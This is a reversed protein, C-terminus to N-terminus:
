KCLRAGVDSNASAPVSACHLYFGGRSVGSGYYGGFSVIRTADYSSHCYQIDCLGTTDSGSGSDDAEDTIFGTINSKIKKVYGHGKTSVSTGGYTSDRFDLQDKSFTFKLDVRIIGDLFKYRNGYFNEIGRYTNYAGAKSASNGQPSTKTTNVANTKNGGLLSFGTGDSGGDNGGNSMNGFGILRQTDFGAYETLILLQVACTLYWDQQSYSNGNRRADARAQITTGDNWSTVNPISRMTSGVSGSGEFASFYRFDVEQVSGGVNRYFAEHLKFGDTPKNTILWSHTSGSFSQKVYFKPIQVMVNSTAGSLDISTGDEKKNSDNPDLFYAPFESDTEFVCRKMSGQISKTPDNFFDANTLDKYDDRVPVNANFSAGIRKVNSQDQDYTVGYPLM